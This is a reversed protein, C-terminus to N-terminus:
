QTRREPPAHPVPHRLLATKTVTGHFGPYLRKLEQEAAPFEDRIDVAVKEGQVARNQAPSVQIEGVYMALPADGPNLRNYMIKDFGIEASGAEVIFENLVPLQAPKNLIAYFRDGRTVALSWLLYEPSSKDAKHIFRIVPHALTGAPTSLSGFVLVVPEHRATLRQLTSRSVRDPHACSALAILCPLLPAIRATM